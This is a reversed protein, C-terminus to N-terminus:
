ISIESCAYCMESCFVAKHAVLVSFYSDLILLVTYLEFSIFQYNEELFGGAVFYLAQSLRIQISNLQPKQLPYLKTQM